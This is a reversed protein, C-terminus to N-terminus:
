DRVRRRFPPLFRDGCGSAPRRTVPEATEWEFKMREGLDRWFALANERPSRPEVGGFVMYPVPKSASFLAKLDDETMEFERRGSM